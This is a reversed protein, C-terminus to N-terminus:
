RSRRQIRQAVPPAPTRPTRRMRTAPAEQEEPEAKSVLGYDAPMTEPLPKGQLGLEHAKAVAEAVAHILSKREKGWDHIVARAIGFALPMEKAAREQAKRNRQFELSGM